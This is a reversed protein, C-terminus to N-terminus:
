PALPPSPQECVHVRTSVHACVHWNRSTAGRCGRRQQSIRAVKTLEPSVGSYRHPFQAERPSPRLQLPAPSPGQTTSDAERHVLLHHSWVQFTAPLRDQGADEGDDRAQIKWRSFLRSPGCWRWTVLPSRAGRQTHGQSPSRILPCWGLNPSVSAGLPPIPGPLGPLTAGHTLNPHAGQIFRGQTQQGSSATM